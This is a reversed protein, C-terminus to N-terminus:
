PRSSTGRGYAARALGDDSHLRGTDATAVGLAVGTALHEPTARIWPDLRGHYGAVLAEARDDLHTFTRGLSVPHLGAM